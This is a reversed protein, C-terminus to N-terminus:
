ADWDRSVQLLKKIQGGLFGLDAVDLYFYYYINWLTIPNGAQVSDILFSFLIV